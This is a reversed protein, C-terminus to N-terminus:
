LMLSCFTAFTVPLHTLKARCLEPGRLSTVCSARYTGILSQSSMGKQLGKVDKLSEILSLSAEGGPQGRGEPSRRTVRVPLPNGDGESEPNVQCM